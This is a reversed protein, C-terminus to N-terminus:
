FGEGKCGEYIKNRDNKKRVELDIYPFPYILKESDSMSKQLMIVLSSRFHLITSEVIFSSRFRDYRMECVFLIILFMCQTKM